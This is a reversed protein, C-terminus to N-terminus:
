HDDKQMSDQPYLNNLAQLQNKLTSTCLILIYVYIHMCKYKYIYVNIYTHTYFYFGCVDEGKSIKLVLSSSGETFQDSRM